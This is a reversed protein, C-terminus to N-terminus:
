PAGSQAEAPRVWSAIMADIKPQVRRRAEKRRVGVMLLQDYDTFEHRLSNQMTVNVAEAITIGRWNKRVTCIQHAYFIIAIEPCGPFEHRM